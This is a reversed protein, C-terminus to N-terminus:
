LGVITTETRGEADLIALSKGSKAANHAFEYLTLAKELIASKSKQDESALTELRANASEPMTINLRVM